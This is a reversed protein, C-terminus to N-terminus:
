VNNIKITTSVSKNCIMDANNNFATTLLTLNSFYLNISLIYVAPTKEVKNTGNQTIVPVM